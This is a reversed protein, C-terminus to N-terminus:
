DIPEPNSDRDPWKSRRFGDGLTQKKEHKFFDPPEASM